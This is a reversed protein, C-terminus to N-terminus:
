SNGNELDFEFGREFASLSVAQLPRELKHNPWPWESRILGYKWVTEDLKQDKKQWM